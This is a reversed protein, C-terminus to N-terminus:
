TLLAMRVTKSHNASNPEAVALGIGGPRRDCACTFQRHPDASSKHMNNYTNSDGSDTVTLSSCRSPYCNVDHLTFTFPLFTVDLASVEYRTGSRRWCHANALRNQCNGRAFHGRKQPQEFPSPFIKHVDTVLSGGNANPSRIAPQFKNGPQRHIRVPDSKLTFQLAVVAGM